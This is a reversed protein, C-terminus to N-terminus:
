LLDPIHSLEPLVHTPISWLRDVPQAERNIWASIFGHGAAAAADWGNASVFLVNTPSCDFRTTVMEYVARNPKYVGVQEVSLVADLHAGIGASAVASDLMAPSGNSLIATTMEKAKVAKLMEPVEPYAPLVEYLKMLRFRLDPDAIGAAEMAWDLADGTVAHFDVHRDATARLWSYGLQKHRWDRALQPWIEALAEGGPEEAAARAAANVDFLTGYADFVITTITM